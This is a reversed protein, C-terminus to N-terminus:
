TFTTPSDGRVWGKFEWIHRAGGAVPAYHARSDAPLDAPVQDVVLYAGIDEFDGELASVPYHMLRNDWQSPGGVFLVTVERAPRGPKPDPVAGPFRGRAGEKTLGAARGLATYTTPAGEVSGAAYAEGLAKAQLYRIIIEAAAIRSLHHDRVAAPGTEQATRYDPTGYLAAVLADLATGVSEYMILRADEPVEEQDVPAIKQPSM